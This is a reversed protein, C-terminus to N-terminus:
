YKFRIRKFDTGDYYLHFYKRWSRSIIVDAVSVPISEGSVRNEINISYNTSSFNIKEDILVKRSKGGEVMFRGGFLKISVSSDSLAAIKTYSKPHTIESRVPSLVEISENRLVYNFFQQGGLKMVPVRLYKDPSNWIVLTDSNINEKNEFINLALRDMKKGAALWNLSVTINNYILLLIVLVVITYLPIKKSFSDILRSAFLAFIWILGVSAVYVYWRMFTPLVPTIFLIFWGISFIIIRKDKKTLVRYLKILIPVIALILIIATIIFLQSNKISYLLELHDPSVFAVPIYLLFNKLLKSLTVGEFHDSAFPNSSIIFIRYWLYIAFILVAIGVFLSLKVLSNKNVPIMILIIVPLLFLVFAIEKSFLALCFSILSYILYKNPQHDIRYYKLLFIFTLLISIASLNEVMDSLWGAQLEHSPLLAFIIGAIIAEKRNLGLLNSSYGVLCSVLSYLILTTIHFLLPQFGNIYLILGYILKVLPRWYFGWVHSTTLPELLENVSDPIQWGIIQFDDNLFSVFVMPLWVLFATGFIIILDRFSIKENM